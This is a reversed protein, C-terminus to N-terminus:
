EIDACSMGAAQITSIKPSNRDFFDSIEGTTSYISKDEGYIEVSRNGALKQATCHLKEVLQAAIKRVIASIRPTNKKHDLCVAIKSILKATRLRLNSISPM